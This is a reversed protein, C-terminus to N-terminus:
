VLLGLSPKLTAKIGRQIGPQLDHVTYLLDLSMDNAGLAGLYKRVWFWFGVWAYTVMMFCIYLVDSYTNVQYRM